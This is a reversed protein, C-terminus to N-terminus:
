EINRGRMDKTRQVTSPDNDKKLLEEIRESIISNSNLKFATIVAGLSSCWYNGGDSDEADNKTKTTKLRKMITFNRKKLDSWRRFEVLKKVPIKNKISTAM